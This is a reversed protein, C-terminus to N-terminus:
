RSRGSAAPTRRGGRHRLPPRGTRDLFELTRALQRGGRYHAGILLEAAAIAPTTLVESAEKLDRIKSVASEEGRMYDILFTSDFCRM